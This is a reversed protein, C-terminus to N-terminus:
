KVNLLMVEKTLLVSWIRENQPQSRKGEIYVVRRLDVDEFPELLELSHIKEPPRMPNVFILLPVAINSSNRWAVAQEVSTAVGSYSALTEDSYGIFAICCRQHALDVALENCLTAPDFFPLHRALVGFRIIGRELRTHLESAILRATLQLLETM